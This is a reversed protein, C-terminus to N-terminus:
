IILLQTLILDKENDNYAQVVLLSKEYAKNTDLNKIKDVFGFNFIQINSPISITNVVQFVGKEVLGDIKKQRFATYQAM